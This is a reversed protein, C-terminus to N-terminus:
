GDTLERWLKVLNAPMKTVDDRHYELAAKANRAELIGLILIPDEKMAQSPTCSFAECITGISTGRTLDGRQPRRSTNHQRTPRSRQRASPTGGSDLRWFETKVHAASSSIRGGTIPNGWRRFSEGPVQYDLCKARPRLLFNPRPQPTM